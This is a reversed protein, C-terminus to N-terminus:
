VANTGSVHSSPRTSSANLPIIKGNDIWKCENPLMSYVAADGGEHWAERAIGDLRFGLRELFRRTKKKKRSVTAQLRRVKLHSFPYAFIHRLSHRTAWRKDLSHITVEISVSAGKYQQYNNFVVGAILKDNEAMGLAACLGFDVGLHHSVWAAVQSDNGYVMRIM